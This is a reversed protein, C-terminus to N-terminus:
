RRARALARRRPAIGTELLFALAPRVLFLPGATVLVAVPGAVAILALIPASVWIIILDVALLEPKFLGSRAPSLGRALWLVGAVLVRNVIVFTCGATLAAEMQGIMPTGLQHMAVRYMVGALAAALFYGTTNFVQIYWRRHARLQEALHIMVIFVALEPTSFLAAAVIVFPLTAHYTEHNRGEIPFAHSIAGAAAVLLLALPAGSQRSARWLVLAAIVALGAVGVLYLQAPLSLQRKRV